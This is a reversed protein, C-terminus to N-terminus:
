MSSQSKRPIAYDCLRIIIKIYLVWEAANHYDNFTGGRSFVGSGRFIMIIRPNSTYSVTHYNIVSM